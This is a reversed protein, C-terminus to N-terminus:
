NEGSRIMHDISPNKERSLIKQCAQTAKFQITEDSSMLGYLIEESTMSAPSVLNSEHLLSSVEENDAINRRKLRQDDKRAKTLEITQGVRRRRMEDTDKRKNKFSRIRNEDAMEMHTYISCGFKGFETVHHTTFDVDEKEESNESKVLKSRVSELIDHKNPVGSTALNLDVNVFDYIDVSLAESSVQNNKKFYHQDQYKILQIKELILKPIKIFDIALEIGLKHKRFCDYKSNFESQISYLYQIILNVRSLYYISIDLIEALKIKSVNNHDPVTDNIHNNQYCSKITSSFTYFRGDGLENSM